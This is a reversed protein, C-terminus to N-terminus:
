LIVRGAYRCHRKVFDAIRSKWLTSAECRKPITCRKLSSALMETMSRVVLTPPRPSLRVAASVTMKKSCSQFGIFSRCTIQFQM